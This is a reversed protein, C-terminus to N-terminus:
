LHYIKGTFCEHRYLICAWFCQRLFKTHFAAELRTKLSGVGQLEVSGLSM